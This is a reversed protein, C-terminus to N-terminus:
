DPWGMKIIKALVFSEDKRKEKLESFIRKAEKKSVLCKVTNITESFYQEPVGRLVMWNRFFRREIKM